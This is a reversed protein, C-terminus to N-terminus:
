EEDKFRPSIKGDLLNDIFIDLFRRLTEQLALNGGCDIGWVVGQDHSKNFENHDAWAFIFTINRKKLEHVIQEVTYLELDNM